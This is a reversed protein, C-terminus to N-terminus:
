DYSSPLAAEVIVNNAQSLSPADQISPLEMVTIDLGDHSVLNLGPLMPEMEPPLGTIPDFKFKVIDDVGVTLTYSSIGEMIPTEVVELPLDDLGLATMKRYSTVDGATHFKITVYESGVVPEETGPEEVRSPCTGWVPQPLAWATTGYDFDSPTSLIKSVCWSSLDQNFAYAQNFMSGMDTVKSTNWQSIDSNFVSADRFMSGMSTVNSVDWNSLDKFTRLVDLENQYTLYTGNLYIVM